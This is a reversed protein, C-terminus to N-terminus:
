TDKWTRIDQSTQAWQPPYLGKRQTHLVKPPRLTELDTPEPHVADCNQIQSNASNQQAPGMNKHLSDQWSQNKREM